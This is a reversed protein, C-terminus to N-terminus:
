GFNHLSQMQFIGKFVHFSGLICFVSTPPVRHVIDDSLGSKWVWVLNLFSFLVCFYLRINRSTTPNSSTDTLCVEPLRATVLKTATAERTSQMLFSQPAQLGPSKYIGIFAIFLPLSWYFEMFPPIYPLFMMLRTDAKLRCSCKSFISKWLVLKTM